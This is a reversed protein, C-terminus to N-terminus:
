RGPPWGVSHVESKCVPCALIQEAVGIQAYRSFQLISKIRRQYCSACICHFTEPPQADSKLVYAFTAGSPILQKLEYRQKEADWEEFSAVKEELEGVRDLLTSQAERAALIKEQLEIVAANRRAADDIDKLGKAIDFATKLAGLGAFVEGVMVNAGRM